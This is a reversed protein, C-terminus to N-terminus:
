DATTHAELVSNSVDQGPRRLLELKELIGAWDAAWGLKPSQNPTKLNAVTGTSIVFVLEILMCVSEAHVSEWCSAASGQLSGQLRCAAAPNAALVSCSCCLWM